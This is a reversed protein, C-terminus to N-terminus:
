HGNWRAFNLYICVLVALLCLPYAVRKIRNTTASLRRDSPMGMFCGIITLIVAAASLIVDLTTSRTFKMWVVAGAAAYVILDAPKIGLWEKTEEDM